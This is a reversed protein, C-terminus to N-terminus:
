ATTCPYECPHRASLKPVGCETYFQVGFTLHMDAKKQSSTRPGLRTCKITSNIKPTAVQWKIQVLKFHGVCFDSAPRKQPWTKLIQPWLPVHLFLM